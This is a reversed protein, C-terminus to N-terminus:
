GIRYARKVTQKLTNGGQDTLQVRLSAFGAAAPHTVAATWTAGSGKVVAKKWTKGDDYSVEVVLSKVAKAASGKQRTVTVGLKVTRGAPATNTQDVPPTIRVSSVPLSLPKDGAVTKSKFTWAVDIQSSLVHPGRRVASTTFRYTAEAAPVVFSDGWENTAKVKKGNRYLASASKDWRSWGENGVGDGALSVWGYITNKERAISPYDGRVTPGFVARNWNQRYTKGAVPTLDPAFQGAIGVPWETESVAPLEEDFRSSWITGKQTSLHEIRRAPLSFPMAVAWGGWVDPLL